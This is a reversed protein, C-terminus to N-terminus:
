DIKGSGPEFPSWAWSEVKQDEHSPMAVLGDSVAGRVCTMLWASFMAVVSLWAVACSVWVEFSVEVSIADLTPCTFVKSPWTAESLWDM